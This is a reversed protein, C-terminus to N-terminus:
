RQGWRGVMSRSVGADVPAITLHTWDQEALDRAACQAGFESALPGVARFRAGYAPQGVVMWQEQDGADGPPLAQELEVAWQPMPEGKAAHTSRVEGLLQEVAAVLRGPSTM